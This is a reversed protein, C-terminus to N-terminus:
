NDDEELMTTVEQIISKLENYRGVLERYSPYDQAAYELASKQLEDLRKLLLDLIPDRM